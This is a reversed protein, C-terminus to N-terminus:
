NERNDIWIQTETAYKNWLVENALLNKQNNSGYRNTYNVVENIVNLKDNDTLLSLDKTWLNHTLPLNGNTQISFGKYIGNGKIKITKNGNTDRSFTFNLENVKVKSM